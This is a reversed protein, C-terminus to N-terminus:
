TSIRLIRLIKVAMLIKDENSGPLIIDASEAFEDSEGIM